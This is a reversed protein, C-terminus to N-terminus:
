KGHINTPRLGKAAVKGSDAAGCRLWVHVSDAWLYDCYDAEGKFEGVVSDRIATANDPNEYLDYFGIFASSDEACWLEITWEGMFYNGSADVARHGSGLYTAGDASGVTDNLAIASSYQFPIQQAGAVGALGLVMLGVLVYRRMVVEKTLVRM